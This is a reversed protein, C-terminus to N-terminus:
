RRTRRGRVEILDDAPDKGRAFDHVTTELGEARLRTALADLADRNAVVKAADEGGGRSSHVVVLRGQRRRVEEVAAEVAAQGRPEPDLRGGRQREHRWGEM